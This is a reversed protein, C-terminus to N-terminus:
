GSPQLFFFFQASYRYVRTDIAALALAAALLPMCCPHPLLGQLGRRGCGSYRVCGGGEAAWSRM